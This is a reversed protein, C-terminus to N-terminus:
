MKIMQTLTMKEKPELILTLEIADTKETALWVHVLKRYGEADIIFHIHPTGSGPWETEFKFEGKEDSILYARLEDIYKGATNMQWHEIRANAVPLCDPSSLIKGKVTLGQSIDIKHETIPKYNDGMGMQPSPKCDMAQVQASLSIFCTFLFIIKRLTM